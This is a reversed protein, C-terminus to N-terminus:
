ASGQTIPYRWDKGFARPSIKTGIPAQHRKYENARILNITQIVAEAPHGQNLLQAQSLGQEMYGAIIADLVGYEPLRDQDTQNPALEASPARTLVRDPIIPAVTNRYHALEYVLTKLVDKLVAFGGCMDGYLTTYGVATESKNSTSILMWGSQNSLAMLLVARIRAQINEATIGLHDTPLVQSLTGLIAQFGPEISLTKTTVQLAAAQTEADESSMDASYRSPLLVAQVREPGLADVAIALTLASDIGGSLGLLVGPINNKHVYDRLGLMLAQYILITRDLVPSLLSSVQNNQIRVSQMTETFAPARAVIQGQGDMVLSQGDFVLEDQAGVMNVYLITLEPQAHQLLQAERLQPKTYDFPSANITVLIDIGAEKVQAIADGQWLDECICLGIRHNQIAFVCSQTGGPKFYRVEDFVGYNPLQQKYYQAVTTARYFVSAANFCNTDIMQPHGLIVYCDQCALRITQLALEIRHLFTPRLLLDEPPYGCIALEPFIILDHTAQHTQIIQIIKQANSEIAGVHPNMQAMLINLAQTM